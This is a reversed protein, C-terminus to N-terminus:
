WLNYINRTKQKVITLYNRADELVFPSATETFGYSHALYLKIDKLNKNEKTYQILISFLEYEKNQIQHLELISLKAQCETLLIRLAQSSINFNLFLACLSPPISRSFQLLTESTFLYQEQNGLILTELLSLASLLRPLSQFIDQYACISLHTIQPCNETVAEIIEPTAGEVVLKQLNLNIMKLLGNTIFPYSGYGNGVHVNRIKLQGNPFNEALSSVPCGMLEFTRLANWELLGIILSDDFHTLGWLRLRTLSRSQNLLAKFLSSERADWFYNSMFSQLMKQSEIMRYLSNHVSTPLGTTYSQMRIEQINTAHISMMTFLSTLINSNERLNPGENLSPARITLEFRQLNLLANHCETLLAFDMDVLSLTHEDGVYVKLSKLRNCRSFILHTIEKTVSCRPHQSYYDKIAPELCKNLAKHFINKPYTIYCDKVIPGLIRKLPRCFVNLPDVYNGNMIAMGMWTNLAQRFKDSDFNQLYSPYDFFPKPYDVLKIGAYVLRSKANSSLCIAYTQIIMQYREKAAM